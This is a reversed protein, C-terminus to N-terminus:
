AALKAKSSVAKARKAAVGKLKEDMGVVLYRRMLDNKSTRLDFAEVRLKDDLKPDMHVTRLVLPASRAEFATSKFLQPNSRVAKIGSTLFRRFVDAKSTQEIKAMERLEDDVDPDVYVTRLVLNEM